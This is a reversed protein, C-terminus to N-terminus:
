SSYDNLDGSFTVIVNRDVAGDGEAQKELNKIRANQERKDAESKEGKVDKLDRLSSTLQKLSQTDLFVSEDELLREIRELIKDAVGVITIAKEADIDSLTEVIKTTTKYEKQQRLNFWQEDKARTKLTNFSVGHKEALKRYSIGGAIYDAKIKKWDM